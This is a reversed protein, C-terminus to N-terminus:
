HLVSIQRGSSVLLVSTMETLVVPTCAQNNDTARGQTVKVAVNMSTAQTNLGSIFTTDSKDGIHSTSFACLFMDREYIEMNKIAPNISASPRDNLELAKMTEDYAMNLNLPFSPMDQSNLEFQVSGGKLGLGNRKFWKSNNMLNTEGKALLNTFNFDSAPTFGNVLENNLYTNIGAVDGGAAATFIKTADGLQLEGATARDGDIFSLYIKDLSNTSETFRTTSQKTNTLAAGKHVRYNKFPIKLAGGNSMISEQVSYYREDKFDIKDIFAYLNKITYDRTGGATMTLINAPALKIHIEFTGLLNTDLISPQCEGLFGIFDNIVFSKKYQNVDANGTTTYTNYKTIAGTEDMVTFVSPDANINLEKISNNYDKKFDQIACYWWNYEPFHQISQGNIIIDLTDIISASYKPMGVMHTGDGSTEFDFHIAFTRLDCVSGPPMTIVVLDNPKLDQQGSSPIIRVPSKTYNQLVSVKEHFNTPLPSAESM